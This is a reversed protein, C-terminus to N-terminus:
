LSAPGPDRRSPGSGAASPPTEDSGRRDCGLWTVPQELEEPATRSWYRVAAALSAEMISRAEDADGREIAAVVKRYSRLASRRQRDDWAPSGDSMRHLSDVLLALVQNGSASAVLSM